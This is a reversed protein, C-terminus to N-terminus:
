TADICVKKEIQYIEDRLVAASEYDEIEVAARLKERLEGLHRKRRIEEGADPPFPTSGIEGPMHLGLNQWVRPQAFDNEAVEKLISAAYQKFDELCKACLFVEGTRGMYSVLLRHDAQSHSCNYCNM